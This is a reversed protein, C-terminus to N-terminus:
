AGYAADRGGGLVSESTMEGGGGLVRDSTTDGGGEGGKAGGGGSGGGGCLGVCLGGLRGSTPGTAMYPLWRSRKSHVEASVGRGHLMMNMLIGFHALLVEPPTVRRM